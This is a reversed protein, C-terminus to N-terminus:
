NFKNIKLNQEVCREKLKNGLIGKKTNKNKKGEERVFALLRGKRDKM